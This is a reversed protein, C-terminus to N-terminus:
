HLTATVMSQSLFVAGSAALGQQKEQAGSPIRVHGGGSEGRDSSVPNTYFATSYQNPYFGPLNPGFGIHVFYSLLLFNPTWLQAQHLGWPRRWIAQIIVIM